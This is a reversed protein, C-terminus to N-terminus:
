RYSTYFTRTHDESWIHYSIETVVKVGLANRESTLTRRAASFVRECQTTMALCSLHGHRWIASIKINNRLNPIHEVILFERYGRRGLIRETHKESDPPTASSPRSLEAGSEDSSSMRGISHTYFISRFILHFLVALSASIQWGWLSM